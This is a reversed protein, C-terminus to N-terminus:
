VKELSLIARSLKLFYIWWRYYFCDRPLDFQKFNSKEFIGHMNRFAQWRFSPTVLFIPITLM